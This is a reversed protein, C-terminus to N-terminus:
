GVPRRAHINLRHYDIEYPPTDTAALDTLANAFADKLEQEPLRALQDRIVVTTIFSRYEEANAMPAPYPEVNTQVDVFGAAHLRDATEEATAFYWPDAWGAFYPAFRPETMLAAMRQRLTAINPGGGCQAILWGGPNLLAFLNRFLRDHDKVWHFTATSFILDAAEGVDEPSITALDAQRFQVRDGYAALEREAVALMRPSIDLAYITAEPLRELLERTIKGTGCGADIAVRIDERPVRELVRAGWVEHPRSVVHYHEANWEVRQSM